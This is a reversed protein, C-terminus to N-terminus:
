PNAIWVKFFTLVFPWGGSPEEALSQGAVECRAWRMTGAAANQLATYLARYVEQAKVTTAGYCKFQVSPVMLADSYDAKGGRFQFCVAGGDSPTYDTAPTNTEAYIRTGVLAVLAANTLLYDRLAKPADIM